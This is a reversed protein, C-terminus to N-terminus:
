RDLMVLLVIPSCPRVYVVSPSSASLPRIFLSTSPRHLYLVSPSSLPPSLLSSYLLCVFTLSLFYPRISFAFFSSLVCTSLLRSILFSQRPFVSCLSPLFYLVFHFVHRVPLFSSSILGLPLVFPSSPYLVSPSPCPPRPYLVFSGLASSLRLPRLLPSLRVLLVTSLFFWWFSIQLSLNTWDTTKKTTRGRLRYIKNNATFIIGCPSLSICVFSWKFHTQFNLCNLLYM